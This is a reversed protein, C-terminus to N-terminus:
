WKRYLSNCSTAVGGTTYIVELLRCGFSPVFVVGQLNSGPSLFGWSYKSYAGQGSTVFAPGYTATITTAFLETALVDGGSIGAGTGITVVFEGIVFNTWLPAGVKFNTATWGLVRLSFTNTASGIAYPQLLLGQPCESGGGGPLLSGGMPIVGDGTPHVFTNLRAPYGNTAYNTAHTRAWAMNSLVSEIQTM